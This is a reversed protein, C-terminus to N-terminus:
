VFEEEKFIPEETSGVQGTVILKLMHLSAM